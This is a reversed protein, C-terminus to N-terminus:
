AMIINEFALQDQLIGPKEEDPYGVAIVALVRQRSPIDMLARIYEESSQSDANLRNRIQVWCSGLGLDQATLQLIVAAISGDEIWVDSVTEDGCIVIGLAADKLFGAGHAKAKALGELRDQDSVFYFRWPRLNRSSPSRVAAEKLQKIMDESLPKQRFRRVSRRQRLLELVM